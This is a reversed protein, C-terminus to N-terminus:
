SNEEYALNRFVVILGLCLFMFASLTVSYFHTDVVSHALFGLMGAIVGIALNRTTGKKFRLFAKASSFLVFGLFLLFIGAGVVGTEAAMHLYSNHTYRVDPYDKPKFAPFNKTYTNVGFGLLPHEKIMATTGSWLRLREWTTGQTSYTAIDSFRAKISAPLFLPSAILVILILAALRKSKLMAM